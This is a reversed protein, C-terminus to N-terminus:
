VMGRIYEIKNLLNNYNIELYKENFVNKTLNIKLNTIYNYKDIFTELKHIYYEKCNFCKNEKCYRINEFGLHEIFLQLLNNYLLCNGNVDTIYKNIYKKMANINDFNIINNLSKSM